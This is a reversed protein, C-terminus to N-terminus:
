GRKAAQLSPWRWHIQLHKITSDFNNSVDIPLEVDDKDYQDVLKEEEPLLLMQIGNQGTLKDPISRKIM